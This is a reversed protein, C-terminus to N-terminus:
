GVFLIEDVIIKANSDYIYGDTYIRFSEIDVPLGLYTYADYLIGDAPLAGNSYTYSILPVYVWGKFNEPVWMRCTNIAKTEKWVGNEYYYGIRDDNTFGNLPKSRFDVNNLTISACVGGNMLNEEVGTVDLYFMIGKANKMSLSKKLDVYIEARADTTGTALGEPYIGISIGNGFVSSTYSYNVNDFKGSINSFAGFDDFGIRSFIRYSGGFDPIGVDPLQNPLLSSYSQPLSVTVTCVSVKSNSTKASIIATGFNLATVKGNKDVTAVTTDSSSWAVEPYTANSPYVTAFLTSSEGVKLDLYERDIAVRDVAVLPPEVTVTCTAARGNVTTANVSATGVSIAVLKGDKVTVVSNDSSTWTVSKDSANSPSVNASLVYSDGVRLALKSKSVTIGTPLNLSRVTVTCVSAVGNSSTAVIVATGPTHASIVGNADVTAISPASSTWTISPDTANDPTITASIVATAGENITLTTKDLSIGVVSVYNENVTVVCTSTKGGDSTTVTVTATGASVATINGNTVSVVAPDSSTWTVTKDTANVPSVTATLTGSEGVKYTIATFNLDVREVAIRAESVTVTCTANKGNAGTAIIVATGAARATLKGNGDVEAVGADSSTWYISKDNADNPLVTAKLTASDGVTLALSSKDLLVSEVEIPATTQLVTTTFTPDEGKTTVEEDDCAALLALLLVLPIIYLLKKM